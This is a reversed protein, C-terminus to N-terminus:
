HPAPVQELLGKEAVVDAALTKYGVEDFLVVLVDGDQSVVRGQGWEVHRVPTHESGQAAGDDTTVGRRCNDCADGCADLPEGFYTALERHRCRNSEAYSRVMDARTADRRRRRDDAEVAESLARQLEGRRVSLVGDAGVEVAAELRGAAATATRRHLGLRDALGGVDSPPASGDLAAVVRRLTRTAVGGRARMAGRRALDEPRYHLVAAAPAGDRGARGLEQAYADLSEPVDAHVVFRVDAKDVGMGFATTAVVVDVADDLFARHVSERRRAPLGAHYTRARVGAARLAKSLAEARRRTAAYVIGSARDNGVRGAGVRDAVDAIVATDKDSESVHRHVELAINPRDAGTTVVLPDRLGLREVIEDRVPPAATATLAVVVPHGLEEIFRGLRLYDPRFDHGWEAVCHAEDIVVLSPAATRLADLTDPRALQEPAVFLFEVSGDHLGALAERRAVTGTTANISAAEGADAEDLSQVQDHQLAVLPSVVATPGDLLVAAVQYVASKGSGTPMVALVDRGAVAARIAERQGPRFDELGLADRATDLLEDDSV